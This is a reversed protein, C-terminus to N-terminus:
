ALNLDLDLSVSCLDITHSWFGCHCSTSISPSQSYLNFFISILHSQTLNLSVSGPLHLSPSVSNSILSQALIPDPSILNCDRSISCFQNLNLGLLILISRSKVQISHSCAQSPPIMHRSVINNYQVKGIVLKQNILKFHMTFIHMFM